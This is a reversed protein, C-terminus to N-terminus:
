WDEEGLAVPSFRDASWALGDRFDTLELVTRESMRPGALFAIRGPLARGAFTVPRSYRRERLVRGQEDRERCLLPRDDALRYWVEISAPSAGAALTCVLKLRGAGDGEAETTRVLRACAPVAPPLLVDALAIDASFFDADLRSQAFPAVRGYRPEYQFVNGAVQLYGTGAERAPAAIRLVSAGDPRRYRLWEVARNAFVGAVHQVVRVYTHQGHWPDIGRLLLDFDAASDSAATARLAADACPLPAPAAAGAPGAAGGSGPIAPALVPAPAADPTPTLAPAAPRPEGAAASESSAPAPAGSAGTPLLAPSLLLAAMFAATRPWGVAAQVFSQAGAM